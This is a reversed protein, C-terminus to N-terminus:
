ILMGRQLQNTENLIQIRSELSQVVNELEQIRNDQTKTGNTHEISMSHVVTLQVIM